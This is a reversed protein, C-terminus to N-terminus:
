LKNQFIGNTKYGYFYGIPQGVSTQTIVLGQPSFYQGTLYKKESGIDTVVNTVHSVNANIEFNFDGIKKTYGLELEVGTNNMAAINGVPGANGVYGPVAIDLLM